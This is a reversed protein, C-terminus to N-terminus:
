IVFSQKKIVITSICRNNDCRNNAAYINVYRYSNQDNGIRKRKEFFNEMKGQKSQWKEACLYTSLRYM